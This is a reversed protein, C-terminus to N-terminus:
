KKTPAGFFLDAAAGAESSPSYTFLAQPRPIHDNMRRAPPAADHHRKQPPLNSYQRSIDAHCCTTDPSTDM